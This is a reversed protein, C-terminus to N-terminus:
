VHTRGQKKPWLERAWMVLGALMLTSFILGALLASASPAQGTGTTNVYEILLFLYHVFLPLQVLLLMSFAVTRGTLWIAAYGPLLRREHQPLISQDVAEPRKRLAAWRNRLWDETDQMLRRCGLLNSFAYYFDTRLFFYCQWVVRMIYLFLLASLMNQVLTPLGLGYAGSAAMFLVIVAASVTDIIPGALIPLYRQNRPLSWIGNMDTHWVVFWLLNGISFRCSVGAARAATLHAMEHIFTTGVGLAMLILLHEATDQPFYFARWGPILVPQKFLTFLAVVVIAAMLYLVYKNWILRAIRPSIWEFHYEAAKPAAATATSADESDSGPALIGCAALTEILDQLDPTEGHRRFYDERIEQLSRGAEFERLIELVESPVSVYRGVRQSGIIFEDGDKQVTYALVKPPSNTM